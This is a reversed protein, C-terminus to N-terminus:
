FSPSKIAKIRMRSSEKYLCFDWAFSIEHAGGAKGGIDSVTFDYSYGIRINNYTVGILAVVADPNEFNHRFWGGLVFPYKNLYLGVNLQHFQGQQMYLVNPQIALDEGAANGLGGKTANILVGGHAAIKMPWKSDADNYFSLNPQNLHDVAVGFFFKDLYNMVAGASFDVVAINVSSPIIESSTQSINGTTPNIQDAFIFKNWNLHEQYYGAKVGFSVMVPNSVQLKYSYFASISNRVLAGDGQADSMALIGYGSNIGPISQDYSINYTVYANSLSPYQNRYNLGLRGCETSGALAPNLYLPNAYFQSFEPDQAQTVGCTVIFLSVIIIRVVRIM